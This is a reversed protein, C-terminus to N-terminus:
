TRQAIVLLTSDKHDRFPSQDFLAHTSLVSFGAKSILDLWNQPPFAALQFSQSYNERAQHNTSPRIKYREELSVLGAEPDYVRITEKILRGGQPLDSLSFQFLKKGSNEILLQNPVFLHLILLGSNRLVQRIEDLCRAITEENKLLNLTNCPLLAADFSRSFGLRTMDMEVTPVQRSHKSFNLMERSNDIGLLKFGSGVLHECIRGTGCGLEIINRCSYGTLIDKYYTIEESSDPFQQNFLACYLDSPLPLFCEDPENEYGTPEYRNM